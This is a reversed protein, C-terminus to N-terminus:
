YSYDRKEIPVYQQDRKGVYEAVPRILRNDAYQELVHATWGAIRSVAFIPTYLDIPIGLAHYTSASYFDVNAYLQKEREMIEEIQRSMEWYTLDGQRQGLKRSMERLHVARPDPGKYVRHGFGMVRRSRDTLVNEVYPRVNAPEGIELLMRIVGENAGGHLPGKLAGIASIIASYVDSLTAATVRAAFTSANFEHDAHLILAVDLTRRAVPDPEEGTLMYLFSEATSHGSKPAIPEQRARLRHWATVITPLQATLRLAKRQSAEPSSENVDLDWLALTSVTTRLVDMPTSTSPFQRMLAIAEDSLPRDHQLDANLSQLQDRTPLAGNWLLYATEEFTSFRALDDIDYGRYSLKGPLDRDRDGGIVECIATRGAVVDELGGKVSAPM